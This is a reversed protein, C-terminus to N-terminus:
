KDTKRVGLFILYLGVLVALGGVFYREGGVLIGVRTAGFYVVHIGGLLMVAGLVITSNVRRFFTM